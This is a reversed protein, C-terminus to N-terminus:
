SAPTERPAEASAETDSGQPQATYSESRHVFPSPGYQNDPKSQLCLMVILAIWGLIPILVLLQFWGSFGADHLRRATIAIHPILTGLIFITSLFAMGNFLLGEIISLGINILFLFLYFMWYGTRTTRGKFDAYHHKIPNLFYDFANSM